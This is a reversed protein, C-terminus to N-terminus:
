LPAAGYNWWDQEEQWGVPSNRGSISPPPQTLLPKSNRKRMRAFDADATPPIETWYTPALPNKLTISDMWQGKFWMGTQWGGQEPCWLLFPREQATDHPATEIPRASQWMAVGRTLRPPVPVEFGSSWLEGLSDRSHESWCLAALSQAPRTVSAPSKQPGGDQGRQASVPHTCKALYSARVTLLTPPRRHGAFYGARIEDETLLGCPRPAATNRLFETLSPDVVGGQCRRRYM